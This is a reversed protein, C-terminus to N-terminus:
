VKDTTVNLMAEAVEEGDVKFEVSYEGVEKIEGNPLNVNKSDVTKDTIASIMEAVKNSDLKAFLTGAENAEVSLNFQQGQYGQLSEIVEGQNAAKSEQDAQLKAVMSLAEPSDAKLAKKSPILFNLGYGNAVETIEGKRGVHAVDTLLLVKM